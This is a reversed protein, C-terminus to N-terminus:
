PMNSDNAHDAWDVQSGVMLFFGDKDKSFLQVAKGTMESLASEPPALEARDIDANIHSSAFLGWAKGSTLGMMKDRTDVYQYGRNLLVKTLNEGDTSKAGDAKPVLYGASGGFVV